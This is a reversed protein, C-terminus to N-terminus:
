IEGETGCTLDLFAVAQAIGDAVNGRHFLRTLNVGILLASRITGSKYTACFNKPNLAKAKPQSAVASHIDLSAAEEHIKQIAEKM